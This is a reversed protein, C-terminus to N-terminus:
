PKKRTGPPGFPNWPVGQAPEPPGGLHGLNQREALISAMSKLM